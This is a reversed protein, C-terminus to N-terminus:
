NWRVRAFYMQMPGDPRIGRLQAVVVGNGIVLGLVCPAILHQHVALRGRLVSKDRSNGQASDFGSGHNRSTNCQKCEPEGGGPGFLGPPPVPKSLLTFRHGAHHASALLDATAAQGSFLLIKCDPLRAQHHHRLEVGNMGPLVVDTLLLEPPTLLATELASDGDYTAMASYGSLTLIKAITDAIAAEDDVVLIRKRYPNADSPHRNGSPAACFVGSGKM